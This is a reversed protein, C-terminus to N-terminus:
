NLKHQDFMFKNVEEINMLNDSINVTQIKDLSSLM